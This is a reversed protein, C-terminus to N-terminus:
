KGQKRPCQQVVQENFARVFAGDRDLFIDGLGSGDSTVSWLHDKVTCKTIWGEGDPIGKANARIVDPEGPITSYDFTYTHVDGSVSHNITLLDLHEPGTMCWYKGELKPCAGFASFSLLAALVLVFRIKM